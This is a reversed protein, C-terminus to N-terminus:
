EEPDPADEVVGTPVADHDPIIDEINRIADFAYGMLGPLTGLLGIIVFVLAMGAGPGTGVLWGFAPALSGGPMMAPEFVWDAMPGTVALSIPQAVRALLARTAFVRGQIQPPIKAQWIAQSSGNLVPLLIMLAFSTVAWVPLSRGIGFLCTGLSIISSGLLVGHIKRKPGGWASMLLGGIVGGVGFASQVSGLLLTNDGTRALIMPAFLTFSFSLIFNLALFVSLLGVLSPSAFIYKFGFMSDERLSGRSAADKLTIDPRPIHIVLLTAIAVVFTLIDFAMIGGIGVITLVIGAAIPAVIGSAAEALSIMGSARGYQEKPLMTSVAASYAPFQFAQFAGTLAASVYLHWVQLRGNIHLLLIATTSIGAAIDSLMMVHKRDWRDVIAGALPSTLIQPVTAFLAVLALATVEGTAQWAWITLAFQTMGTGLLSVLQGFWIITFGRM